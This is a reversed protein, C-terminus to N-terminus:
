YFIEFAWNWEDENVRSPRKFVENLKALNNPKIPQALPQIKESSAASQNKIDNLTELLIRIQISENILRQNNKRAQSLSIFLVAASSIIYICVCITFADLIIEMWYGNTSDQM